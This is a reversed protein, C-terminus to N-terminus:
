NIVRFFINQLHLLIYSWIFNNSPLIVPLIYIKKFSIINNIFTFFTIFNSIFKNIYCYGHIINLKCNVRFFIEYLDRLFRSLFIYGIKSAFKRLSDSNNNNRDTALYTKWNRQENVYLFNWFIKKHITIICMLIRIYLSLNLM